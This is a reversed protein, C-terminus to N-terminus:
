SEMEETALFCKMDRGARLRRLIWCLARLKWAPYRITTREGSLLSM